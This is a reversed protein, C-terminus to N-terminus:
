EEKADFFEDENAISPNYFIKDFISNERLDLITIEDVNYTVDINKNSHMKLNAQM